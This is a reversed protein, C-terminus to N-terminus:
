LVSPRLTVNEPHIRVLGLKRVIGSLTVSLQNFPADEKENEIGCRKSSYRIKKKLKSQTSEQHM